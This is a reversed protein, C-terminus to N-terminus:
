RISSKPILLRVPPAKEGFAESPLELKLSDMTDAAPVEFILLDEVLKGPVLSASEGRGPLSWGEDFTAPKLENGSADTLRVLPADAAAPKDNWTHYEFMRAVGSNRVGLGIVLYKVKTVKQKEKPGKLVVPMVTASLLTVRVDSRQWSGKSVDLWDGEGIVQTAKGGQPAVIRVLKSDDDIQSPLWSDLGLWSPLM